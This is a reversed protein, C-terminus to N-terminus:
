TPLAVQAHAFATPRHPAPPPARTSPHPHARPARHPLSSHCLAPRPDDAAWAWVERRQPLACTFHDVADTHEPRGRLSESASPNSGVFWWLPREQVIARGAFVPPTTCPVVRELEEVCAREQAIWSCYWRGPEQGPPSLGGLLEKASTPHLPRQRKTRGSASPTAQSETELTFSGEIHEAHRQLVPALAAFAGPAPLRTASTGASAASRTRVRPSRILVAHSRKLHRVFSEHSSSPSLVPVRIEM